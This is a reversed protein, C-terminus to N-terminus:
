RQVERMSADMLHYLITVVKTDTTQENATDDWATIYAQQFQRQNLHERSISLTISKMNM